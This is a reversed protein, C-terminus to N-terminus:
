YCIISGFITYNEYVMLIHYVNMSKFINYSYWNMYSNNIRTYLGIKKTM